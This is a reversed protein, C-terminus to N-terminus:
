RDYIGIMDLSSDYTSQLASLNLDVVQIESTMLRHLLAKFLDELVKRKKRHLDIKRDIADLISVIERQEDLTPVPVLREKIQRDTVAPYSAGTEIKSLQEIFEQRQVLQFIYKGNMNRDKDRLVCFATSCVQDNLEEEIKAVRLLTPRVTAFIVDGTLIRKRARSPAYRLKYRTTTEVQHFERSISSVDVYQIEREAQETMNVQDAPLCLSGLKEIGWSEPVPGIKTEKSEEGRLGRTFLTRMAARKLDRVGQECETESESAKQIAELADAIANQEDFEFSPIPLNLLVNEPIRKRGTSGEMREAMYERVDPHLLYYFLFRPDHTASIPHLPIVETTAYGFPEAFNRVLAQKGNEFSPTIKAVLIDGREFYTGSVITGPARMEYKPLYAGGRPIADMAAFPIAPLFSPDIGRPKKTVAYNDGVRSWERGEGLDAKLLSM